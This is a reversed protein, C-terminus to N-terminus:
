LHTRRLRKWMRRPLPRILYYLSVIVPLGQTERYVKYVHYKMVFFGSSLSDSRRIRYALPQRIILASGCQRLLNLWTAYDEAKALEPMYRKGLKETDYVVTSTNIVNGKLLQRYNIEEPMALLMERNKRRVIFDTCSFGMAQERMARIQESLKNPTWCDDSDLFAIYRGTAARIATNRAAAAGGNQALVILKVREDKIQRVMSCTDDTSGDDVVLAELNAYTQELVSEIATRIYRSSNYSPIIVSVKDMKM